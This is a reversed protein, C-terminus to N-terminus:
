RIWCSRSWPPFHCGFTRRCPVFRRHSIWNSCLELSVCLVDGNRVWDVSGGQLCRTSCRQRDRACSRRVCNYFHCSRFRDGVIGTLLAFQMSASCVQTLTQFLGAALSQEHPLSVKAVFLTGAAFVFDAGFVAVIPSPFGFAWYPSSPNILAFLLAGLATFCTGFVPCCKARM